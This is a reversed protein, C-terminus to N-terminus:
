TSSSHVIILPSDAAHKNRTLTKYSFLMQVVSQRIGDRRSTDQIVCKQCILVRQTM